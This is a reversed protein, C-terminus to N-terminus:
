TNKEKLKANAWAAGRAFSKPSLEANAVNVVEEPTLEVWQRQPPTTYLPQITQGREADDPHKFLDGWGNMWAVPEQEVSGSPQALSERAEKLADVLAKTTENNVPVIAGPKLYHEINKM